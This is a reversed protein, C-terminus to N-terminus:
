MAMQSSPNEFLPHQEILTIVGKKISTAIERFSKEAIKRGQSDALLYKGTSQNIWVLQVDTSDGSEEKMTLWQGLSLSAVMSYCEDIAFSTNPKDRPISVPAELQEKNILSCDLNPLEDNDITLLENKMGFGSIMDELVERDYNTQKVM